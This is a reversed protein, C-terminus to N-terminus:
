YLIRTRISTMRRSIANKTDNSTEKDVDVVLYGIENTTALVQTTVNTDCEAFFITSTGSCELFTRINLIRYCGDTQPLDVIPFNVAGSTSGANVFKILATAVERGINMQAEATSGGIHPTLIVNPLGQLPTYFGPGNKAPELPYVDVAAGKVHGSSVANALAQIDVVTGRSANILMSGKKMRALQKAGIMNHTSESKPVHLSVFDLKALLEDLTACANSNGIHLRPAVDYYVVNLGMAETLVSLQSGIHGYGVIGM